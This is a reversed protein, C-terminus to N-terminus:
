RAAAAGATAAAASPAAAARVRAFSNRIVGDKRPGRVRWHIAFADDADAHEGGDPPLLLRGVYLDPGCPHEFPPPQRATAAADAGSLTPPATTTASALAVHHFFRAGGRIAKESSRDTAEDFYVAVPDAELDWLLRRYAVLEVDGNNFRMTGKEEYALCSTAAATATPTTDSLPVYTAIGDFTADLGGRTYSMVKTLHWEGALFARLANPQTIM